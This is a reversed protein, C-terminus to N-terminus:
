KCHITFKLVSKVLLIKLNRLEELNYQIYLSINKHIQSREEM